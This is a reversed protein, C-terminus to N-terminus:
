LTEIFRELEEMGRVYLDSFDQHRETIPGSQQIALLPDIRHDNFYKLGLRYSKLNIVHERDQYNVDRYTSGDAQNAFRIAARRITCPLCCGCHSPESDGSYRGLDPHSCSMTWQINNRLFQSDQCDRIMEGKTKFQYPNVITIQLGMNVLLQRLMGMFHPHTTRTSLSGSRHVTLPINLSIVGNEPVYLTVPNGMGSALLIAHAFFMLSRSRTTNERGSKPAAYFQYFREREYNFHTALLDIVKKQYVSVGKGGNYNGVFIPRHGNALLDTAGIFSDLGGSLMCFETADLKNGARTMVERRTNEYANLQRERFQFQWLDGTLFNLMNELLQKNANWKELCLVPMYVEISRTWADPQASRLVKRDAYFVMLSIYFLDIAEPMFFRPIKNLHGKNKTWLTYSYKEKNYLPVQEAGAVQFADDDNLQCNYVTRM